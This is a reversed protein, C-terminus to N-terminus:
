YKLRSDFELPIIQKVKVYKHFDPHLPNLLYNSEGPSQRSPVVLAIYKNDKLQNEVLQHLKKPYPVQQWNDPLSSGKIKKLPAKEHISIEVIVRGKPLTKSNALIELKALSITSSCYIIWM